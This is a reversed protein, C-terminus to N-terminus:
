GGNQIAVEQTTSAKKMILNTKNLRDASTLLHIKGQWDHPTSFKLCANLDRNV